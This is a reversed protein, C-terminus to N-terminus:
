EVNHKEKAAQVARLARADVEACKALTECILIHMDIPVGEISRMGNLAEVFQHITKIAIYYTHPADGAKAWLEMLIEREVKDSDKKMEAEAESLAAFQGRREEAISRIMKIIPDEEPNEM